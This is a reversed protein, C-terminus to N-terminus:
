DFSMNLFTDTDLIIIKRRSYELINERKLQNFLKTVTERTTGILNAIDHQNFYNLIEIKNEDEHPEEKMLDNIFELLRTRADKYFLRELRREMKQLRLGIIKYIELSFRNNNRMLEHMKDVSLPCLLTDDTMAIANDKREQEGWLAKEGFLEGKSLVAMIFEEGSETYTVIKVKGKSVLYIKKGISSQQYIVDNKKHRLFHKDAYGKLKPPCLIKYLNINELFWM